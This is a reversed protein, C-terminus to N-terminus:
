VTAEDGDSPQWVVVQAGTLGAFTGGHDGREKGGRGALEQAGSHGSARSWQAHWRARVGEQGHARQDV